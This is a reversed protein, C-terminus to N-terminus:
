FSIFELAVFCATGLGLNPGQQSVVYMGVGNVFSGQESYIPV